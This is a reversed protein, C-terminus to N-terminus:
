SRGPCGARSLSCRSRDTDAPAEVVVTLLRHLVAAATPSLDVESLERIPVFRTPRGAGLVITTEETTGIFAHLEVASASGTLDPRLDQWLPNLSTTLGAEEALERVAALAPTEGAEVHGGPLAWQGPEAAAHPDRLQLLVAGTPGTLAVVAIRIPPGDPRTPSGDAPPHCRAQGAMHPRDVSMRPHNDALTNLVRHGLLEYQGRCRKLPTGPERRRVAGGTVIEGPHFQGATLDVDTGDPLRNWWHFGTKVGEVHVEGLILEGGLLEQVVLATTGCQGRAPNEPRWDALDHPDCTDPGWATQFMPRLLEVNVM